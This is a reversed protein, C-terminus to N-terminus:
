SRIPFNKNGTETFKKLKQDLHYTRMTINWFNDKRSVDFTLFEAKCGKKNATSSGSAAGIVPIDFGQNCALTEAHTKHGHGHLVLNVPTEYLVSALQEHNLLRKRNSIFRATVPHHILLVKCFEKLRSEDLLRRLSDLQSQSVHGTARFWPAAFVSSVSIFAVNGRIRVNPFLCELRYHADNASSQTTIQNDDGLMYDEWIAFSRNWRDNVYLDHNGPIVTIDHADGLEQLWQAAQEFEVQLGIHTLDGTIVYHDIQLNQLKERALDLVWRKHIHRRNRLWSLYGLVRKNALLLPNFNTPSSLHLDSLQAFRFSENPHAASDISDNPM